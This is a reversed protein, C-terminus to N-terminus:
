IPLTLIFLNIFLWEGFERHTFAFNGVKLLLSPELARVSATRLVSKLTAVEGFVGGERLTDVIQNYAFNALFFFTILLRSANSNFAYKSLTRPLM